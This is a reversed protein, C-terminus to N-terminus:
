EKEEKHGARAPLTGVLAEGVQRGRRDRGGPRDDPVPVQEPQTDVKNSAPVRDRKQSCSRGRPRSCSTSSFCRPTRVRRRSAGRRDGNPRGFTPDLAKWEIPAGKIKLREANHNYITAALPIEGSAVLEAMLTHGTRMQPKM